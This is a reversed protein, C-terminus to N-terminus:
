TVLQDYSQEWFGAPKNAIQSWAAAILCGWDQLEYVNDARTVYPIGDIRSIKAIEKWQDIADNTNGAARLAMVY